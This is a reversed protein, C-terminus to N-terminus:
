TKPFQAQYSKVLEICIQCINKVDDIGSHHKGKHPINLVQIMHMMGKSQGPFKTAKGFYKKINIYKKLYDPIKLNKHKAENRLCNSM